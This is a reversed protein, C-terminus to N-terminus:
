AILQKLGLITKIESQHRATLGIMPSTLLLHAKIQIPLDNLSKDDDIIIYDEPMPNSNFWQLLEDKRSCGTTNEPLKNIQHLSIGREAFIDKWQELTYRGKHSSTLMITANNILLGRLVSVSQTSFAPFGDSLLTPSQWGKAPVMVGDIDLFILM